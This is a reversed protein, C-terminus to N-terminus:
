LLSVSKMFIYLKLRTKLSTKNFHLYNNLKKQSRNGLGNVEEERQLSSISLYEQETNCLWSTPMDISGPCCEVYCYDMTTM